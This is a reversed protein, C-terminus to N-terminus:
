KIIVTVAPSGSKKELDSNPDDLRMKIAKSAFTDILTRNAEILGAVDDPHLERRIVARPLGNADREEGLSVGNQFRPREEAACTLRHFGNRKRAIYGPRVPETRRDRWSALCFGLAGFPSRLVNSAHSRWSPKEFGVFYDRMAAPLLRNGIAPMALVLYALSLGPVGHAPDSMTPNDLWFQINPLRRDILTRQPLALRHRVFCDATLRYDLTEIVDAPASLDAIQAKLHGMYGRGTWSPATRGNTEFFWLLLRASDLGGAALVFTSGGVRVSRGDLTKAKLANIKGHEDIEAGCCNIDLYVKPGTDTSLAAEHKRSLAPLSAWRELSM